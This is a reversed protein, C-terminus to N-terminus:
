ASLGGSLFIVYKWHHYIGKLILVPIYCINMEAFPLVDETGFAGGWGSVSRVRSGKSRMRANLAGPWSWRCNTGKRPQFISDKRRKLM